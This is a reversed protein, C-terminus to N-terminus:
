SYTKEPRSETVLIKEEFSLNNQETHGGLVLFALYVKYFKYVIPRLNIHVRLIQEMSLYTRTLILIQIM